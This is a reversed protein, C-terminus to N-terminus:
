RRRGEASASGNSRPRRYRALLEQVTSARIAVSPCPRATIIQGTRLAETRGRDNGRSSASGTQSLGRRPRVVTQQVSQRAAHRGDNDRLAAQFSGAPVQVPQLGATCNANLTEGGVTTSSSWADGQKVPFRLVTLPPNLDHGNMKLRFIGEASVGLYETATVMGNVVTELQAAQRGPASQLKAVRITMSGTMGNVNSDFVWKSGQKLPLYNTPEAGAAVFTATIAATLVALQLAYRTATRM